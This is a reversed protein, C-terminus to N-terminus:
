CTQYVQMRVKPAMVSPKPEAELNYITTYMSFKSSTVHTVPRRPRVSHPTTLANRVSPSMFLSSIPTYPTAPFPDSAMSLSGNTRYVDMHHQPSYISHPSPFTPSMMQGGNPVGPINGTIPNMM